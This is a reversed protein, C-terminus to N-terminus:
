DCWAKYTSNSTKFIVWEQNKEDTEIIETVLSTMWWDQAQMTRAYASGCKVRCGVRVEGHHYKTTKFDISDFMGGCDGSNDGERALYFRGADKKFKFSTM